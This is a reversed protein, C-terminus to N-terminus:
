YVSVQKVVEGVKILYLGKSYSSLNIHIVQQGKSKQVNIIRGFTDYVKVEDLDINEANEITFEGSSPNPFINITTEAKLKETYLPDENCLQLILEESIAYDYLKIDDLKGLYHKSDDVEACASSGIMFPSSSTVNAIGNVTQVHDLVCDVYIKTTKGDRLFVIQHWNGDNVTINGYNSNLNTGNTQNVVGRIKGIYTGSSVSVEWMNTNTCISRNGMFKFHNSSSTNMWFCVSFNSTGFQAIVNDFLIHNNNGNFYYASNPTGSRDTTLTAGNVVGHHGNGSVDNANGSFPYEAVLNQSHYPIILFFLAIQFLTIHKM